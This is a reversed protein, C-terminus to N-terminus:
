AAGTGPAPLRGHGEGAVGGNGAHDPNRALQTVILHQPVHGNLGLLQQRKRHFFRAQIKFDYPGAFDSRAHEIDQEHSRTGHMDALTLPRQPCGTQLSARHLRLLM